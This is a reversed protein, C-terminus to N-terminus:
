LTSCRRRTAMDGSVLCRKAGDGFWIKNNTLSLTIREFTVSFDYFLIQTCLCEDNVVTDYASYGIIPFTENRICFCSSLGFDTKTSFLQINVVNATTNWWKSFILKLRFIMPRRHKFLNELLMALDKELYEPIEIHLRKWAHVVLDTNLTKERVQITMGVKVQYSPRDVKHGNLTIHGHVVVQRTRIQQHLFWDGSSMTWDSELLFDIEGTPGKRRAAESMYKRFQKEVVGFHFRLETKKCVFRTTLLNEM